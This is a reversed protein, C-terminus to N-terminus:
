FRLKGAVGFSVDRNDGFEVALEMSKKFRYSLRLEYMSDAYDPRAGLVTSYDVFFGKWLQHGIRLQLPERYGLELAFEQIGLTSELAEEIPDFVTPMIATSFLSTLGEGLSESNDRALISELQGQGSVLALIRQESLDPPSSEFQMDLKDPTGRVAMTVTYRQREGWSSVATIRGEARIDIQVLMQGAPGPRISVISGPLMRFQHMPFLIIGDSVDLTSEIMPSSLSGRATLSGRVPSKLRAAEFRVDRGISLQVDFRPDFGIEVPEGPVAKGPIDVSARPIQVNGSILPGSLDGTIKLDSNVTAQATEGYLNSINRGSLILGDTRVELNASPKLGELTVDGAVEFRGGDTSEGAFEQVTLKNGVLRVEANISQLPSTFKPIGISGDRWTVGGTLDPAETSGSLKVSGEFLGGEATTLELGSFASLIELSDKDLKSELLLPQDAPIKLRRWDIPLYGVLRLDHKGATIAFHDIEMKGQGSPDSRGSVRATLRDFKAEGLVPEEISLSLASSPESLKGSAVLTVDAIGSLNYPLDIWHELAELLLQRAEVNLAISEGPGYSGSAKVSAGKETLEFKELRVVGDRLVGAVSMREVTSPGFRIDTVDMEAFVERDSTNDTLPISGHMTGNMVADFPRPVRALLSGNEGNFRVGSRDLLALFRAGRGNELESRFEIVGSKADYELLHLMYRSNRDELFLDSVVVGDTGALANGTIRRFRMGNLAPNDCQVSLQAHPEAATGAVEGNISLLGSIGAGPAFVDSFAKLDIDKGAIGISIPGDSPIEGQATVETPGSRLGLEEITLRKDRYAISAAIEDVPLGQYSANRVKFWGKARIDPAAGSIEFRGALRGEDPLATSLSHFRTIDFANTELALNLFPSKGLPDLIKGTLHVTETSDYLTFDHIIVAKRGADFEASVREVGWGGSAIRFGDVSAKIVPQELTGTVSGSFQARGVVVADTLLAGVQYMNIDSGATQLDLAGDAGITGSVAFLGGLSRGSLEEIELSGNVYAGSVACDTVELDEYQFDSVSGSYRIVSKDEEFQAQFGGSTAASLDMEEMGPIRDLSLNSVRGSLEARFDGITHIEGGIEVRGGYASASAKHIRIRGDSYRGEVQIDGARLVEHRFSPAALTFDVSPSAHLGSVVATVQGSRPLGEDLSDELGTIRAVEQFNVSDSTIRLGIRPKGFDRVGGTLSFPTSELRGKLSMNVVGSEFEVSGEIDSAPSRIQAFGVSAKKLLVKGSYLIPADPGSKWVKIQGRANGSLVDIGIPFPYDSFYGADANLLDLDSNFSHGALNYRGEAKFKGLRGPQGQGTIAYKALPMESLDISARIDTLVNRTPKGSPLTDKVEIRGSIVSVAGIFNIPRGPPTPKILGAINWQGDPRRELFVKPESIEVARISAVPDSRRRILDPLSYKVEVKRVDLILAETDEDSITVKDLVVSGVRFHIKGISLDGDLRESAIATVTQPLNSLMERGANVLFVATWIGMALLPLAITLKAVRRHKSM